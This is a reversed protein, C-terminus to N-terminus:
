SWSHPDRWDLDWIKATAKRHLLSQINPTKKLTNFSKLGFDISRSRNKHIKRAEWTKQSSKVQELSLTKVNQADRCAGLFDSAM